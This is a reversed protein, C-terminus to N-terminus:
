DFYLSFSVQFVGHSMQFSTVHKDRFYRNVYDLEKIRQLDQYTYEYDGYLRDLMYKEFHKMLYMKTKLKEPHDTVLYNKRVPPIERKGPIIYELNRFRSISSNGHFKFLPFLVYQRSPSLVMSSGDNFHVGISGDTLAYGMGYKNCYDVWSVIFVKPM